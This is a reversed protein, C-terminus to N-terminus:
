YYQTWSIRDADEMLTIARTIPEGTGQDNFETYVTDEETDYLVM